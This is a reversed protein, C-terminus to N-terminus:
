GCDWFSAALSRAAARGFGGAPEVDGPPEVVALGSAVSGSPSSSREASCTHILKSPLGRFPRKTSTFSALRVREVKPPRRSTITGRLLSESVDCYKALFSFANASASALFNAARALARELIFSGFTVSASRSLSCSQFLESFRAILAMKTSAFSSYTVMKMLLLGVRVKSNGQDLNLGVECAKASARRLFFSSIIGFFGFIM